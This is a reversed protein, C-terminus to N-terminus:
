GRSLPANRKPRPAPVAAGADGPRLRGTCCFALQAEVRPPHFGTNVSPVLGSWVLGSWVVFPDLLQAMKDSWFQSRLTARQKYPLGAARVRPELVVAALDGGVKRAVWRSNRKYPAGLGDM